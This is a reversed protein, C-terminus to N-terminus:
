RQSIAAIMAFVIMPIGWVIARAQAKPGWVDAWLEDFAREATQIATAETAAGAAAQSNLVVLALDYVVGATWVIMLLIMLVYIVRHM